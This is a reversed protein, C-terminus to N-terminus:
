FPWIEMLPMSSAKTKKQTDIRKAMMYINILLSEPMATVLLTQGILKVLGGITPKYNLKTIAALRIKVTNYFKQKLNQLSSNGLHIRYDLLYDPLNFIKGYKFLTFFTYYDDNVGYKNEYLKNKKPLLNRRIMCSPHVLPCVELFKKYIETHGTPFTKEGIIRREEDIVKAQTGVVIAEKKELFFKVQKQFREPHSIDDADMPAIFEGKAHRMATNAAGYADHRKKFHIVKIKKPYLQRYREIIVPTNDTSLNNVIILEFNQYTQALISEIAQEVFFSGNYVPMIVSVLPNKKQLPSLKPM